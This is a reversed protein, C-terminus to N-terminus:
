PIKASSAGSDEAPATRQVGYKKIIEQADPDDKALELLDKLVTELQAKLEGTQKVLVNRKEIAQDAQKDLTQLSELQKALADSQWRIFGTSQQASGIQSVLLIAVTSALLALPLHFGPSSANPNM